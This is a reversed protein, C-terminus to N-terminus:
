LCYYACYKQNFQIIIITVITILSKYYISGTVVHDDCKDNKYDTLARNQANGCCIMKM